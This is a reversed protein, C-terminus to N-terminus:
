QKTEFLQTGPPPLNTQITRGRNKLYGLKDLCGLMLDFLQIGKDMRWKRLNVRLIYRDISCYGIDCESMAKEHNVQKIFAAIEARAEPERIMVELKHLSSWFLDPDNSSFAVQIDVIAKDLM